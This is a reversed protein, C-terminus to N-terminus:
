ADRERRPRKESINGLMIKSCREYDRAVYTAFLADVVLLQSMRSGMAGSRILPESPAVGLVWDAEDALESGMVRTVAIVRAGRAHACRAISLMERTLGSYSFIIAVDDEHMNRASLIQAHWDDHVRCDKDIRELKSELDRAVLLSAGAGYLRVTGCSFIAEACEELVTPDLLRATAEMSKIDSKLVKELVREADDDPVIDELPVDNVGEMSALEHILARQFERYGSFGLKRCFRVVSSASTGSMRALDRITLDAVEKPCEEVKEVLERIAPSASRRLERIELLLGRTPM